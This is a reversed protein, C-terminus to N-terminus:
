AQKCTRANHAHTRAHMDCMRAHICADRQLLRKENLVKAAVAERRQAVDTLRYQRAEEDIQGMVRRLLRQLAGKPGALFPAVRGADASEEVADMGGGGEAAPAAAATGGEDGPVRGRGEAYAPDREGEGEGEGEPHYSPSDQDAADGGRELSHLYTHYAKQGACMPCRTEEAGTMREFPSDYDLDQIKFNPDDADVGAVTDGKTDSFIPDSKTTWEFLGGATMSGDTRLALLALAAVLTLAAAAAAARRKGVM